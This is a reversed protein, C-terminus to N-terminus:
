EDDKTDEAYEGDNLGEEKWSEGCFYQKNKMYGIM